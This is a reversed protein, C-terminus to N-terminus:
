GLSAKWRDYFWCFRSSPISSSVSAESSHYSLNTSLFINIQLNALNGNELHVKQNLQQPIPMWSLKFTFEKERSKTLKKNGGYSSVQNDMWGPLHRMEARQSHLSHPSSMWSAAAPIMNAAPHHPSRGSSSNARV